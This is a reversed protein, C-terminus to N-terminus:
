AAWSSRRSRSARAARCPLLGVAQSASSHGKVHTLPRALYACLWATCLKISCDDPGREGGHGCLVTQAARRHQQAWTCVAEAKGTLDVAM